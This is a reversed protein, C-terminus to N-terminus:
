GRGAAGSSCRCVSGQRVRREFRRSLESVAPQTAPRPRAQHLRARFKAVLEDDLGRHRCRGITRMEETGVVWDRRIREALGHQDLWEKTGNRALTFIRDHQEIAAEAMRDHFTRLGPVIPHLRMQTSRFQRALRRSPRDVQRVGCQRRRGRLGGIRRTSMTRSLSPSSAIMSSSSISGASHSCCAGSPPSDNAAATREDRVCSYGSGSRPPSTPRGMPRM